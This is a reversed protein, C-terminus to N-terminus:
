YEKRYYVLGDMLDLDSIALNTYICEEDVKDFDSFKFNSLFEAAVVGVSDFDDQDPETDLYYRIIFHRCTPDYKFVVARIKEYIEGLLSSQLALLIEEKRIEM